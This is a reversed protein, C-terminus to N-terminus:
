EPFYLDGSEFADYLANGLQEEILDVEPDGLNGFTSALTKLLDHIFDIQEDTQNLVNTNKM